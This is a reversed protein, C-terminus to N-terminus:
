ATEAVRQSGTGAISALEDDSLENAHRLTMEGQIEVEARQLKPIHYEVLDMICDWAAKAGYVRRIEDLLEQLQDANGDVFRAIAERANSTAKNPV